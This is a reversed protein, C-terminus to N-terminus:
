FDDSDAETAHGDVAGSYSIEKRQSIMDNAFGLFERVGQVIEKGIFGEDIALTKGREGIQYWRGKDNKNLTTQLKWIKAYLPAPKGNPLATLRAMSLLKKAHTIGTSTLPFMLVGDEPHDPLFVLFNRTDSVRNGNSLRFASGDPQAEGSARLEEFEEPTYNGRLMGNGPEGEWELFMRYYGLLVVRLERGYGKQTVSNFFDGPKLGEIYLPDDEQVQPTQTQAIKLFPLSLSDRDVNDFGDGQEDALAALLETDETKAVAKTSKAPAKSTGKKATAM